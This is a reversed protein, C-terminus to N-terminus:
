DEDNDDDDEQKTSVIIVEGTYADIEIDAEENKNQIEIEYKLRENDEDDLEISTITGEFEKLAIEEAKGPEIVAKKESKNEDSKAQKEVNQDDAVDTSKANEPLPNENLHLIKGSNGDIKLEYKNQDGLIELEYVAKNKEKDLELETVTGPYQEAVLKRIDDTSLSADAQSATVQFIGVGLVAAVIVAVITIKKKKSM